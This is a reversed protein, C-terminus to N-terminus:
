LLPPYGRGAGSVLGPSKMGVVASNMRLRRV